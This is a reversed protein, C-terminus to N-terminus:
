EVFPFNERGIKKNDLELSRAPLAPNLNLLANICQAKQGKKRAVFPSQCRNKKRFQTFCTPLILMEKKRNSDKMICEMAALFNIKPKLPKEFCILL